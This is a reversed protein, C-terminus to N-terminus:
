SSQLSVSDSTQSSVASSQTAGAQIGPSKAHGSSAQTGFALNHMSLATCM